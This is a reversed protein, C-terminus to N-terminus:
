HHFTMMLLFPFPLIESNSINLIVNWLTEVDGWGGLYGRISSLGWVRGLAGSKGWSGM